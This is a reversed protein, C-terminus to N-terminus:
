ISSSARKPKCSREKTGGAPPRPYHTRPRPERALLISEHEVGHPPRASSRHNRVAVAAALWGKSRNERREGASSAPDAAENPILSGSSIRLDVLRADIGNGPTGSDAVVFRVHALDETGFNEQAFIEHFDGGLGDAALYRLASGKRTLRLQGLRSETPQTRVQYDKQPQRTWFETQFVSGEQARLVRGVKAFKTRRDNDAVNLSVGVGYGKAPRDASLLEYTGTVEFDGSLAFTTAVEM